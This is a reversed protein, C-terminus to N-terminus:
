DAGKTEFKNMLDELRKNKEDRDLESSNAEKEDKGLLQDPTIKKKYNGTSNMLLSTQWAVQDYSIGWTENRDAYVAEVM